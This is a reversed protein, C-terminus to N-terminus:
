EGEEGRPPLTGRVSYIGGSSTGLFRSTGSSGDMTLGTEDTATVFGGGMVYGHVTYTCDEDTTGDCDDDVGNCIVGESM